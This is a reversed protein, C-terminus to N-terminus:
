AQKPRSTWETAPRRQAVHVLDLADRWGSSLRGIADNGVEALVTLAAPEFSDQASALVTLNSVVANLRRLEPEIAFLAERLRADAESKQQAAIEEKSM